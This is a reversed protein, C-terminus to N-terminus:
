GRFIQKKCSRNAGVRHHPVVGKHHILCCQRSFEHGNGPGTSTMLSHSWCGRQQTHALLRKSPIHQHGQSMCAFGEIAHLEVRLAHGGGKPIRQESIESVHCSGVMAQRQRM